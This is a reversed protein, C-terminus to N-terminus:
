RKPEVRELAGPGDRVADLLADLRQEREPSSFLEHGGDYLHIREPPVREGIARTSVLRDRLTCFVVTDEAIPSRESRTCYRM